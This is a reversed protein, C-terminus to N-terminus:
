FRAVASSFRNWVAQSGKPLPQRRASKFRSLPMGRISMYQQRASKGNIVCRTRSGTQQPTWHPPIPHFWFEIFTRPADQALDSLIQCANSQGKSRLRNLPYYVRRLAANKGILQTM